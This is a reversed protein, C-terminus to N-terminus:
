HTHQIHIYSEVVDIVRPILDSCDTNLIGAGGIDLKTGRSCMIASLRQKMMQLNPFIVLKFITLIILYFLAYLTSLV